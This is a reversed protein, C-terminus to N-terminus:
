QPTLGPHRPSSDASAPVWCGSTEPAPRLVSPPLRAPGAPCVPGTGARESGHHSAVHTHVSMDSAQSHPFAPHWVGPGQGVAPGWGPWGWFGTPDTCSAACALTILSLPGRAKPKRGDLLLPDQPDQGTEVKRYEGEEATDTDWDRLPGPPPPGSPLTWPQRQTDMHRHPSGRPAKRSPAGVWSSPQCSCAPGMSVCGRVTISSPPAPGGPSQALPTRAPKRSSAVSSRLHAPGM